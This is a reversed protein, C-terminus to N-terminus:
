GYRMWEPGRSLPFAALNVQMVLNGERGQAEEAFKALQKHIEELMGSVRRFHDPSLAVTSCSVHREEPAMTESAELGKALMERRAKKVIYEPLGEASIAQEQQVYRGNGVARILGCRELLEVAKRAQLTKIEPRLMRALRQYDGRWDATVVLERIVPIYWEMFYEFQRKKLRAYRVPKRLRALARTHKERAEPETGQNMLVLNEFYESQGADMELAKIIKPLTRYSLNRRGDLIYMCFSASRLGAKQAMSKLTFGRKKLVAFHDRLFSRYDDYEYIKELLGAPMGM